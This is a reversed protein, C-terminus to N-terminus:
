NGKGLKCGCCAPLVGIHTPSPQVKMDKQLWLSHQSFEQKGTQQNSCIASGYGRARFWLVSSIALCIHMVPEITCLTHPFVTETGM